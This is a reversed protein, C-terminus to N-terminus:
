SNFLEELDEEEVINKTGCLVYGGRMLFCLLEMLDMIFAIIFSLLFPTVYFFCFFIFITPVIWLVFGLLFIFQQDMDNSYYSTLIWNIIVYFPLCLLMLYESPQLCFIFRMAKTCCHICM